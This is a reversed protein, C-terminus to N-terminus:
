NPNAKLTPTFSHLILTKELAQLSKNPKIIYM